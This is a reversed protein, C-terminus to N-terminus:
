GQFPARPRRPKVRPGPNGGTRIRALNDLAQAQFSADNQVLRAALSAYAKALGLHNEVGELWDERHTRPNLAKRLNLLHGDLLAPSVGPGIGNQPLRARPLQRLLKGVPGAVLELVGHAPTLFANVAAQITEARQCKLIPYILGDQTLGISQELGRAAGAVFLVAAARLGQWEARSSTWTLGHGINCLDLRLLDSLSQSPPSYRDLGNLALVLRKTLDPEGGADLLVCQVGLSELLLPLRTAAQGSAMMEAWVCASLQPGRIEDCWFWCAPGLDLGAVRFPPAGATAHGAATSAGTNGDAGTVAAPGLSMAYPVPTDANEALGLRRCADLVAQTLPQAAGAHPIAIRDCFFAATASGSPDEFGAYWASVIERLPIASINLQSVRLGLRAQAVREPHRAVYRGADRDLEAGCEPCALYYDALRDYPLDPTLMPDPHDAPGPWSPSVASQPPPRRLRLCRPFTEELCWERQCRPCPVLKVHFSSAKLRANQGAGEVRQTGIFATLHLPSNTMRADVYGIHREDIDDVEDLLALDLTISTPPKHMGCFSGFAKRAGNTVTYSQKRNVTKGSANRVKGLQIMAAMWPYLDLVNPRFKQDVIEEVKFRDPLYNGASLFRVATAYAMLNLELVTKGFQAGGAVALTAGQLSGPAFVVGDIEVPEADLTNRLIKDLWEVVLALPARGALSFPAAAGDRGLVRAHVSLFEHFSGGAPAGRATEIKALGADLLDTARAQGANPVPTASPSGAAELAAAGDSPGAIMTADPDGLLARAQRYLALAEPHGAFAQAVAELGLELKSRSQVRFKERQFALTDRELALRRTAAWTEPSDTRAALGLFLVQGLREVEEAPWNPCWRRLTALLEEILAASGCLRTVLRKRQAAQRRTERQESKRQAATKPKPSPAPDANAGDGPGASGTSAAGRPTESM